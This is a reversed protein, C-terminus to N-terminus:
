VARAMRDLLPILNRPECPCCLPPSSYEFRLPPSTLSKKLSFSSLVKLYQEGTTAPPHGSLLVCNAAKDMLINVPFFDDIKMTSELIPSSLKYGLRQGIIRKLAIKADAADEFIM